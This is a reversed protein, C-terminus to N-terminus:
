MFHTVYDAIRVRVYDAIKVRMYDAIRVQYKLIIMDYDAIRVRYRIDYCVPCYFNISIM